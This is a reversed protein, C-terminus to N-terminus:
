VDFHEKKSLFMERKLEQTIYHLTVSTSGYKKKVDDVFDDLAFTTRFIGEILLHTGFNIQYVSNVSPENSLFM